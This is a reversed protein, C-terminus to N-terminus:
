PVLSVRDILRMESGEAVDYFEVSRSPFDILCVCPGFDRHLTGANVFSTQDVTKVLPIHSHGHVVIRPHGQHLLQQLPANNQLERDGDYRGLLGMDDGGLGHCLLLPGEPSDFNLTSPLAELYDITEPELEHREIADDLDRMSDELLWRDHNGCVTHVDHEVLLERCREVGMIDEPGDVIDGVCLLQRADLKEFLELARTLAASETHVDGIIGIRHPLARSPSGM